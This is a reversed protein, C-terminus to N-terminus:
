RRAPQEYGGAILVPELRRKWTRPKCWREGPDLSAHYVDLCSFSVAPSLRIAPLVQARDRGVQTRKPHAGGPLTDPPGDTPSLPHTPTLSYPSPTHPHAHSLSSHTHDPQHSLTIRPHTRTPTSTLLPHTRTPQALSSLTHAPPHSLTLLPHQTSRTLLPHTRIPALSQHTTPHECGTPSRGRRASRADRLAAAGAGGWASKRRVAFNNDM